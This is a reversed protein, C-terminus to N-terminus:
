SARCRRRVGAAVSCHCISSSYLPVHGLLDNGDDTTGTRLTATDDLSQQGGALEFNADDAAVRRALRSFRELLAADLHHFAIQELRATQAGGELASVSGEDDGIEPVRRLHRPFSLDADCSDLFRARGTNLM